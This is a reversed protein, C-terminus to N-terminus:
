KKSKPKGVYLEENESLTFCIYKAYNEINNLLKKKGNIGHPEYDQNLIVIESIELFSKM